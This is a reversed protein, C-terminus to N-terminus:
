KSKRNVIAKGINANAKIIQM